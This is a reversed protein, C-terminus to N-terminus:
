AAVAALRRWSANVVPTSTFVPCQAFAIAAALTPAKSEPM